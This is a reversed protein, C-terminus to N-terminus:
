DDRMSWLEALVDEFPIKGVPIANITQYTRKLKVAIARARTWVKPKGHIDDHCQTCVSLYCERHQISKMRGYTGGIIEHVTATPQKQCIQCIPYDFGYEDRAANFEDRQEPTLKMTEFHGLSM